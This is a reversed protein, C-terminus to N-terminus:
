TFQDNSERLHNVSKSTSYKYILKPMMKSLETSCEPIRSLPLLNLRMLKISSVKQASSLHCRISAIGYWLIDFDPIQHMLLFTQELM